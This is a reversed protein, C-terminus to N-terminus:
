PRQGIGKCLDDDQECAAKWREAAADADKEVGLGRKLAFASMACVFGRVRDCAPDMVRAAVELEDKSARRTGRLHFLLLKACANPEELACARAIRAEPKGADAPKVWGSEVLTALMLCSAGRGDPWRQEPGDCSAREVRVARALLEPTPKGNKQAAFVLKRCALVHGLECARERAALVDRAKLDERARALRECAAASKAACGRELSRLALAADIPHPKPEFSSNGTIRTWVSTNRPANAVFAVLEDMSFWKDPATLWAHLLCSGAEGTRECLEGAIPASATAEGRVLGCAQGQGTWDSPPHAVDEGEGFGPACRQVAVELDTPVVPAPGVRETALFIREEPGGFAVRALGDTGVVVRPDRSGTEGLDVVAFGGERERAVEVHTPGNKEVSRAQVVVARGDSGLALNAAWGRRLPVRTERFGEKTRRVLITEDDDHAVLALTGDAGYTLAGGGRGPLAHVRALEGGPTAEQISIESGDDVSIAFRGDPAAAIGVHRAGESLRSSSWKGGVRRVLHAEPRKEKQALYVFLLSGGVDVAQLEFFGEASELREFTGAARDEVVVTEGSTLSEGAPQGASHVLIPGDARVLMDFADRTLADKELDKTPVLSWGEGTSRYVSAHADGSLQALWLRGDPGLELSTFLAIAGFGVTEVDFVLPPAPAPTKEVSVAVPVRAPERVENTVSCSTAFCAAALALGFGGRMRRM